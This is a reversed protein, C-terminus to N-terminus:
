ILTLFKKNLDIFNNLYDKEQITLEDHHYM